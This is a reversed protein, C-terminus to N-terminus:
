WKEKGIKTSNENMKSRNTTYIGYYMTIIKELYTITKLSIILILFFINIWM